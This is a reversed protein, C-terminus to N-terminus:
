LNMLMYQRTEQIQLYIKQTLQLSIKQQSYETLVKGYDVESLNKLFIEENLRLNDSLIQQNDIVTGQQGVDQLYNRLHSNIQEFNPQLEALGQKLLTKDNPNNVPKKLLDALSKLSNFVTEKKSPQVYFVDGLAPEGSLQVSIGNFQIDTGAQYPPADDPVTAPPPPIIQGSSAGTIQYALEGGINTVIELTYVDDVYDNRNLISGGALVANGTNTADASTSFLANGTPILGFIKDGAEAYAVRVGLGINIETDQPSGQYIYQGAENRFPATDSSMGSFIYQNDADKSNALNMFQDLIGEVEKGLATRAENNLTDTQAQQVLEEIRSIMNLSQNTLSEKQGQRSVALSLNSEFSSLDAMHSQISKIRDALLPNESARLIKQGTTSQQELHALREYQESLMKVQNRYQSVTPFRM